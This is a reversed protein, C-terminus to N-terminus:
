SYRPFKGSFDATGPQEPCQATRSQEATNLEQSIGPRELRVLCSLFYTYIYM